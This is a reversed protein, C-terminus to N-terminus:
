ERPTVAISQELVHSEGVPHHGASDALLHAADDLLHVLHGVVALDAGLEKEILVREIVVEAIRM